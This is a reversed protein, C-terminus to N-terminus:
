PWRGKSGGRYVPDSRTTSPAPMGTSCIRNRNACQISAGSIWSTRVGGMAEIRATIAFLRTPDLDARHVNYDEVLRILEEDLTPIVFDATFAPVGEGEWPRFLPMEPFRPYFVGLFAAGKEEAL